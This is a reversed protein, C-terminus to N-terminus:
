RKDEAALALAYDEMGEEAMQRDEEAFEAYLAALETENPYPFNTCKQLHQLSSADVQAPRNTANSVDKCM